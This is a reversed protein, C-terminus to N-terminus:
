AIHRKKSEKEEQDPDWLGGSEYFKALQCNLEYKEEETMSTRQKKHEHLKYTKSEDQLAEQSGKDEKDGLWLGGSEYFRALECNLEFKWDERKKTM